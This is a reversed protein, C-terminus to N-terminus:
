FLQKIAQIKQGDCEHWCFDQVEAPSCLSIASAFNQMPSYVKMKGSLHLENVGLSELIFKANAPSIGGGPLIIIKDQAAEVLMKLTDIGEMVSPKCGSTLIRDVGCDILKCLEQLPKKCQDFARHFTVSMPKAIEVLRKMAATNTTGTDTLVGVVIGNVGLQKYYIIEKEISVLENKNYVFDGVRPRILVHIPLETLERVLAVTGISPSLGGEAFGSCLEIRGAGNQAATLAGNPTFTAVEILPLIM